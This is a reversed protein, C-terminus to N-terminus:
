LRHNIIFQFSKLPNALKIAEILSIMILSNDSKGDTNQITILRSPWLHKIDELHGDTLHKIINENKMKAKDLPKLADR